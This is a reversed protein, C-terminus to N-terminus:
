REGGAAVKFKPSSKRARPAARAEELKKKARRIKAQEAHEQAVAEPRPVGSRTLHEAEARIATFWDEVSMNEARDKNREWAVAWADERVGITRAFQMAAEAPTAERGGRRVPGSGILLWEFEVHFTTAMLKVIHPDPTRKGRRGTNYSSLFGPHKFADPHKRMLAREAENQSRYGELDFIAFKLRQGLTSDEGPTSASMSVFPLQSSDGALLHRNVASDSSLVGLTM